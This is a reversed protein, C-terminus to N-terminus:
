SLIKVEHYVPPPSQPLRYDVVNTTSPFGCGKLM